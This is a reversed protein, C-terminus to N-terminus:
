NVAFSLTWKLWSLELNYHYYKGVVEPKKTKAHIVVKFDEEYWVTLTPLIFFNNFNTMLAFRKFIIKM